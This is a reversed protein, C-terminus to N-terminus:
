IYILSNFVSIDRKRNPLAREIWGKVRKIWKTMRDITGLRDMWNRLTSDRECKEIVCIVKTPIPHSEVEKLNEENLIWPQKLCYYDVNCGRSFIDAVNEVGQIHHFSMEMEHGMTLIALIKRGDHCSLNNPSNKLRNINILSDSFLKPQGKWNIIKMIRDVAKTAEYMALLELNVITRKSSKPVIKSKGFIMNKGIFIVYGYGTLSADCFCRLNTSTGIYRPLRIENLKELNILNDDVKKKIEDDFREDWDLNLVTAYIQRFVLKVPDFVGIPDYCKGIFSLLQRRTNISTEPLKWNLNLEDNNCQWTIGLLKADDTETECENCILRSNSRWKHMNFGSLEFKEKSEVMVDLLQQEDNAGVLLDDMYAAKSLLTRAPESLGGIITEVVKTLVAPACVIGFPLVKMQMIMIKGDPHSWLFRLYKRDREDIIIQLFAKKLDVTVLFRYLRNRLLHPLVNLGSADGKWLLENLSENGSSAYLVIRFKTTEADPRVVELHPIFYGSTDSVIEAHDNNVYNLLEQEYQEYLEKAKLRKQLSKLQREARYYNNKPRVNSFFPLRAEFRGSEIQKVELQVTSEDVYEEDEKENWPISDNPPSLKIINIIRRNELDIDGFVTRLIRSEKKVFLHLNDEGIIIRNSGITPSIYASVDTHGQPHTLIVEAVRDLRRIPSNSEYGSAFIPKAERQNEVTTLNESILTEEAGTDLLVECANEGIRGDFRFVSRSETTIHAIETNSTTPPPGFVIGHMPTPHKSGCRKCNFQGKRRCDKIRHGMCLCGQCLQKRMIVAKRESITMNDDCDTAFHGTKDCMNCKRSSTEIAFVKKVSPQNVKGNKIAKEKSTGLYSISAEHLREVRKILEKLSMSLEIMREMEEKWFYDAIQRALEFDRGKQSKGLNRLLTQLGKILSLIKSLGSRVYKSKVPEMDAIISRIQVNVRQKSEYLSRVRKWCKRLPLREARAQSWTKRPDGELLKGIYMMRTKQDVESRNLILEEVDAKFLFWESFEGNFSKITKSAEKISITANESKAEKKKTKKKKKRREESDSDDTSNSDSSSSSTNSDSESEKNQERENENDDDNNEEDSDSKQSENDGQDDLNIEKLAIRNELITVKVEYAKWSKKDDENELLSIRRNLEVKFATVEEKSLKDSKFYVTLKRKFAQDTLAEM